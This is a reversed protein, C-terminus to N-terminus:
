TPNRREPYGDGAYSIPANSKADAKRQSPQVMALIWTTCGQLIIYASRSTLFLAESKARSVFQEMAMTFRMM